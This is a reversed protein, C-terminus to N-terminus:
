LMGIMRALRLVLSVTSARQAPPESQDPQERGIGAIGSGVLYGGGVAAALAALPYRRTVQRAMTGSSCWSRSDRLAERVATSAFRRQQRLFELDDSM